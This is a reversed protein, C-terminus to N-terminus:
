AWAGLAEQASPRRSAWRSPWSASRSPRKWRSSASTSPRRPSRRRSRSRAPPQAKKKRSAAPASAAPVSPRGGSATAAPRRATSCSSRGLRRLEERPGQIEIRPSNAARGRAGTPGYQHPQGQGGVPAVPDPKADAEAAARPVALPAEARGPRLRADGRRSSRSPRLHRADAGGRRSPRPARRSPPAARRRPSRAAARSEGRGARATCRRRRRSLAPHRRPRLQRRSCGRCSRGGPARRAPAPAAAVVKSRRRIVTGDLDPARRGPRRAAGPRPRAPASGRRRSSSSMHNKVDIGFARVKAVLDKPQLGLDKAVEYLACAQGVAAEPTGARDTDTSRRNM